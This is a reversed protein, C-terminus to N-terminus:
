NPIRDGVTALVQQKVFFHVFAITCYDVMGHWYCFLLCNHYFTTGEEKGCITILKGDLDCLKATDNKVQTTNSCVWSKSM